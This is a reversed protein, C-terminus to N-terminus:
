LLKRLAFNCNKWSVVLYFQFISPNFLQFAQCFPFSWNKLGEIRWNKLEEIKWNKLKQGIEGSDLFSMKLSSLSSPPCCEWFLPVIRYLPRLVSKEIWFESNMICLQAMRFLLHSSYTIITCRANHMTCQFPQLLLWIVSYYSDSLGTIRYSKGHM